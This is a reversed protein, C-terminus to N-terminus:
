TTEELLLAEAAKTAAAFDVSTDFYPLGHEQCEARIRRSYAIMNGIHDRIYADSEKLLWDTERDGERKVIEEKADVSIDAFGLFCARFADPHEAMLARLRAPLMAEGEIVVDDGSAIMAECMARFFPWLREAIEDPWLKDHIGFQPAGNTFGMMIWDLSLRPIRKRRFVRDALITKGSRSAGSILYLVFTHM